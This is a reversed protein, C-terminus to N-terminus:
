WAIGDYNRHRPDVDAVNALDFVRIDCKLWRNVAPGDVIAHNIIITDCDDLHQTNPVLLPELHGLAARVAQQNSGMLRDPAVCPDYIRLRIGEGILRKAVTVYPSERMDDTKTKFALGIM